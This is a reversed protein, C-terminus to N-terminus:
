QHKMSHGNVSVYDEYNEMVVYGNPCTCFTRIFDQYTDTTIHFKPDWTQSTIHDMIESPVEVRVGVDIPAYSTTIGLRHAENSLWTSGARGPAALIIDTQVTQKNSLVLNYTKEYVINKVATNFYFMVGYEKLTKKLNTIIRPLRDSGIHRQPIPIYTIGHQMAKKELASTDQDYRKGVVGHNLFIQEIHHIIKDARANSIYDTLNGGIDSRFNLKGDSLGGAGGLGSLINCPQCKECRLSRFSVPCHRQSIDKGQEIIAVSLTSNTALEYAAFLGAPGAGIIIVDHHM